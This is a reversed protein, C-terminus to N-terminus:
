RAQWNFFFAMNKHPLNSMGGLSLHIPMYQITLYANGLM